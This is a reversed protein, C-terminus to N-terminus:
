ISFMLTLPSIKTSVQKSQETQASVMDTTLFHVHGPCAFGHVCSLLKTTTLPRHSPSPPMQLHAHHLTKSDPLPGITLSNCVKLPQTRAVHIVDGNFVRLCPKSCPGPPLCVSPHKGSVPSHSCGGASTQESRKCLAHTGHHRRVKSLM